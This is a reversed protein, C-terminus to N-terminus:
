IFVTVYKNGYEYPFEVKWGLNHLIPKIIRERAYNRKQDEPLRFIRIWAKWPLLSDRADRLVANALEGYKQKDRIKRLCEKVRKSERENLLEIAANEIAYQSTLVAALENLWTLEPREDDEGMNHYIVFHVEEHLLTEIFQIEPCESKLITDMQVCVAQLSPVYKGYIASGFSAVAGLAHRLPKVGWENFKGVARKSVEGLLTNSWSNLWQSYEEAYQCANSQNRDDALTNKLRECFRTILDSTLNHEKIVKEIQSIAKKCFEEVKMEDDQKLLFPFFIDSFMRYEELEEESGRVVWGIGIFCKMISVPSIWFKINGIDFRM